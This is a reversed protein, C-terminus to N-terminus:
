VQGWDYMALPGRHRFGLSRYVSEGLPSSQLAARTAGLDRAHRLAELTVAAGIGRGRAEAVTAVHYIGALDGARLVSSTAVPVNGDWAVFHAWRPEKQRGLFEYADVWYRVNELPIGFVGLLVAAWTQLSEARRIVLGPVPERDFPVGTMVADMAASDYVFRLGRKVLEEGLDHTWWRFACRASQFISCVADIDTGPGATAIGNFFTLPIGTMAGFAGAVDILRAGPLTALTRFCERQMEDVANL